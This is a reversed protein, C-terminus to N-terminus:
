KRGTFIAFDNCEPSALRGNRDYATIDKFGVSELTSLIDLQSYARVLNTIDFRQWFKDVLQFITIRFEGVKDVPNFSDYCAWAFDEKVDGDTVVGNWSAYGDELNLGFLFVGNDLLANYVKTFVQQMEEITMMHNLSGSPSIVANFTPPL